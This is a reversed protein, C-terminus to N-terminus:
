AAPAFLRRTGWVFVGVVFFGGVVSCFSFLLVHLLSVLAGGIRAWPRFKLLGIGVIVGPLSRVLVFVVLAMGTLGLIPLAIRADPDGISGIIGAAGGFVLMLVCAGVVGIAGLGIYLVAPVKAHAAM